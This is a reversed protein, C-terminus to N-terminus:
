FMKMQREPYKETIRPPPVQYHKIMDAFGKWTYSRKQSRRNLWKFLLNVCEYFVHSLDAMNGIVGYYNWYGRFKRCATAMIKKLPKHRNERIWQQFNSISTRKKKPSTRRQVGRKGSRRKVWRYQFGLFSFTGNERGGFRSFRLTKTKEEALELEFKQLRSSLNKEFREADNKYRFACVFDDAYRIMYCEGGCEPKIVKEFWLDLAYHLYINALVPSIIGGQPTGTAPHLVKGDEELVGAKLWKNIMRIFAGDDVRQELMKLMWDHSLHDFFGRIDAEVVWGFKGRHLANSLERSAKQTGRGPRYGWSCDLFDEEYIASLINACAQQLLKDELAPIGLPRKKGNAKSIYKRRVMKARYRKRKLRSVLDKLNKGLDKEYERFTVKDVGVAADKRLEYFCMRLNNENLLRYLNQFRAKKDKRARNAIGRLSTPMHIDARRTRM